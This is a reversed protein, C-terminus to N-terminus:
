ILLMFFRIFLSFIYNLYYYFLLKLVTYLPLHFIYIPMINNILYFKIHFVYCRHSPFGCSYQFWVWSLWYFRPKPNSGFVIFWAVLLCSNTSRKIVFNTLRERIQSRWLFFSKKFLKSQEIFFLFLPLM